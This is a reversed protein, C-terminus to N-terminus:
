KWKETSSNQTAQVKAPSTHAAVTKTLEYQKLGTTNPIYQKRPIM